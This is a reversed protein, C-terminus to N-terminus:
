FLTRNYLKKEDDGNDEKNDDSGDIICLYVFFFTLYYSFCLIFVMNVKRIVLWIGLISISEDVEAM